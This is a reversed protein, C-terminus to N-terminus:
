WSLEVLRLPCIKMVPGHGTCNQFESWTCAHMITCMIKLLLQTVNGTLISITSGLQGPKGMPVLTYGKTLWKWIPLVMDLFDQGPSRGIVWASRQMICLQTLSKIGVRGYMTQGLSRQSAPILNSENDSRCANM